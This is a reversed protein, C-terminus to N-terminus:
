IHILSLPKPAASVWSSASNGWLDVLSRNLSNGDGDATAPWPASDDFDVYDEIVQPFVLPDEAPPDAAELLTLREGGNDLSGAYPGLYQSLNAAINVSYTSSFNAIDSTDSVPDFPVIVRTKGPGITAGVPFDFGIGNLSWNSLDVTEPSPNYIEVFELKDPDVGDSTPPHYMVESIVLPGFRPGSNAAGLTSSSDRICMLRQRRGM